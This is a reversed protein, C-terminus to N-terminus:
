LVDVLNFFVFGRTSNPNEVRPLRAHLAFGLNAMRMQHALDLCVVISGEQMSVSAMLVDFYLLLLARIM